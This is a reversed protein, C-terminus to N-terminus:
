VKNKISKKMCVTQAEREYDYRVASTLKPGATGWNSKRRQQM